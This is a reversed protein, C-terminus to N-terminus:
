AARIKDGVLPLREVEVILDHRVLLVPIGDTVGGKLALVLTTSRQSITLAMFM